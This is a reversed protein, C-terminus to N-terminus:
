KMLSYIEDIEKPINESLNIPNEGNILIDDEIRIGINYEQAYLGPECTIIMGDELILDRGGIDHTDLGLSHGISHYYWQDIGGEPLDIGEKKLNEVLLEKTLKQLESLKTGAKYNKILEKQANLVARYFKEQILTFKGSVPYTRSIDACYQDLRAGLDFLILDDRRVKRNNDIYHLTPGNPGSAAITPFSLEQAGNKKIIYEFLAALEYEKNGPHMEDLIATLGKNTINIAEKLAQIEQPKKIIRLSSFLNSLDKINTTPESGDLFYWQHPPQSRDLFLSVEPDKLIENIYDLADDLYNLDKIDSIRSAQIKSYKKGVWKERELDPEPIFLKEIVENGNKYITLLGNPEKLGTFYYYNNDPYFPYESDLSQQLERGSFILALSNDELKDILNQRNEKFFSSNIM